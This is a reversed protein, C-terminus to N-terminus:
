KGTPNESDLKLLEYPWSVLILHSPIEEVM